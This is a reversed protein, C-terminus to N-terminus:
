SSPRARTRSRSSASLTRGRDSTGACHTSRGSRSSTGRSDRTSILRHDNLAAEAAGMARMIEIDRAKGALDTGRLAYDTWLTSGVFQISDIVVQDNDLLHIRTDFDQRAGARDRGAALVADL